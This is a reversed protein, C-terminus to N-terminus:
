RRNLRWASQKPHPHAEGELIRNTGNLVEEAVVALLMAEDEEFQAQLKDPSFHQKVFNTDFDGSRFAEHELVYRCFALTTQIGVLRYEAIARLMKEIAAARDEAHVILKAIMPD